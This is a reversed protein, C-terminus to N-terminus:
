FHTIIQIAKKGPFPPVDDQLKLLDFATETGIIDPRTALAQGIKIFGPGLNQLAIVLPTEPKASVDYKLKINRLKELNKPGDNFLKIIDMLADHKSLTHGIKVIRGIHFIWKFM